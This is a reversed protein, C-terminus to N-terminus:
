KKFLKSILGIEKTIAFDYLKVLVETKIWEYDSQFSEIPANQNKYLNDTFAELISEIEAVNIKPYFKLLNSSILTFGTSMETFDNLFNSAPAGNLSQEFIKDTKKFYLKINELCVKEFKIVKLEVQKGLYIILVSFVLALFAIILAFLALYDSTQWGSEKAVGGNYIIM